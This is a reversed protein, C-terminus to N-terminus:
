GSLVSKWALFVSILRWTNFVSTRLWRSRSAWQVFMDRLFIKVFVVVDAESTYHLDTQGIIIGDWLSRRYGRVKVDVSQLNFNDRIEHKCSAHQSEPPISAGSESIVQEM